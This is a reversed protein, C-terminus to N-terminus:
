EAGGPAFWRVADEDRDLSVFGKFGQAELRGLFAGMKKPMAYLAAHCGEARLADARRMAAPVEGKPYLVAVRPKEAPVAFGEGLLIAAIREFGISFGVAPVREGIFKEVMGDYRGGGGVSGPYGPVSIEFVTGTYYGQGRVLTLDFRLKYRGGSLALCSDMIDALEDLPAPDSLLPRLSDRSDGAGQLAKLLKETCAAEFGKELLEATVGEAGIKDLKDLSICVVPASESAFGASAILANLIRKDNINITFDKFGIGLLAQATTHILEIEADYGAVGLMDIDCQFFERMRGQQPQEARFVKDIQIVKFPNPLKEKNCAYFRTLPLTLDYRLGIDSLGGGSALAQELKRGRKLVKFLLALNEGGESGTLNDIDELQPTSIREFGHALYAQLIQSQLYDRVRQEAPLIDRTGKLPTTKM